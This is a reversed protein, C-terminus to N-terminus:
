KGLQQEVFDGVVPLKYREGKYAKVMMVIWLVICLIGILFSLLVGLIPIILIVFSAIHLVGFTVLSQLAHFRVYANDKEVLLFILGSVWGLAYCLLAELNETIGLVTKKNEDAMKFGGDNLLVSAMNYRMKRFFLYREKEPLVLIADNWPERAM